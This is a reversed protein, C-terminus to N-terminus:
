SCHSVIGLLRTKRPKCKTIAFHSYETNTGIRYTSKFDTYAFERKADSFVRLCSLSIPGRKDGHPSLDNGIREASSKLDSSEEGTCRLLSERADKITLVFSFRIKLYISMYYSAFSRNV